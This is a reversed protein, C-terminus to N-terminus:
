STITTPGTLLGTQFEAHTLIEESRTVDQQIQQILAAISEFRKEDRIKSIFFLKVAFDYINRDFNHIYSEVQPKAQNEVFTPRYGINTVSSFKENAVYAFTAYVGAPPLIKHKWVSLNATPFGITRGRKDGDEVQGVLSFPRGLAQTVKEMEGEYIWKRIQSSSTKIDNQLFHPMVNVSFRYKEGLGLLTEITGQRQYGFSFDQGIWIQQIPLVKMLLRIFEEPNLRALQQDFPLTFTYDVGLSEFIEAKEQPSTINIDPNIDKIVVVPIPFFTIVGCAAGELRASQVMNTILQQHGLHVGDFTGITIFLKKEDISSLESFHKM